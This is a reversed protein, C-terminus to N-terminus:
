QSDLDDKLTVLHLYHPHHPAKSPEPAIQTVVPACFNGAHSRVEETASRVQALVCRVPVEAHRGMNTFLFPRGATDSLGEQVIELFVAVRKTRHAIHHRGQRLKCTLCHWGGRDHGKRVWAQQEGISAHVLVLGDEESGNVGLRVEGVEFTCDVGM